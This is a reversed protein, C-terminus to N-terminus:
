TDSHVLLTTLFLYCNRIFLSFFIFYECIAVVVGKWFGDNNWEGLLREIAGDNDDDNIDSNGTSALSSTTQRVSTNTDKKKRSSEMNKDNKHNKSNKNSNMSRINSKRLGLDSLKFASFVGNDDSKQNVLGLRCDVFDRNQKSKKAKSNSTSSIWSSSSPSSTIKINRSPNTNVPPSQFSFVLESHILLGLLCFGLWSSCPSASQRGMIM